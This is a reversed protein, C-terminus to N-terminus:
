ITWIVPFVKQPLYCLIQRRKNLSLKNVRVWTLVKVLEVNIENVLIDLKDNTCFLNTDDAFLIPMFLNSVLPLDNIYILFLFPGLISWQPVGCLIKRPESEYNNYKVVQHRNPNAKINFPYFLLVKTIPNQLAKILNWTKIQHIAFHVCNIECSILVTIESPIHKLFSSHYMCFNGLTNHWFFRILCSRWQIPIDCKGDPVGKVLM